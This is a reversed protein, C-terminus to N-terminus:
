RMAIAAWHFPQGTPSQLLGAEMVSTCWMWGQSPDFVVRAFPFLRHRNWWM